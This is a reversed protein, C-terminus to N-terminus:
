ACYIDCCREVAGAKEISVSHKLTASSRRCIHM